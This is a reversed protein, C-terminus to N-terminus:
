PAVVRTQFFFTEVGSLPQTSRVTVRDVGNGLDEVSEVVPLPTAFLLTTSASVTIEVGNAARNRTFRVAPYRIGDAEVEVGAPWEGSGAVMPNGGLAYELRNTIGDGDPDDDPGDQGVPVNYGALWAAFGPDPDPGSAPATVQIRQIFDQRGPTRGAVLRINTGVLVSGDELPHICHVVPAYVNDAAGEYPSQFGPVLAGDARVHAIARMPVGNVEAFSGGLVLTGDPLFAMARVGSAAVDFSPDVEGDPGARLLRDQRNYYVEGAPGVMVGRPVPDLAAPVWLRTESDDALRRKLGTSVAYWLSGDPPAAVSFLEGRTASTTNAVRRELQGDVDLFLLENAGGEGSNSRGVLYRQGSLLAAARPSYNGSTPGNFATDLTLDPNLRAIQGITVIAGGPGIAQFNLTGVAIFGGDHAPLADAVVRSSGSSPIPVFTRDLSGDAGFRFVLQPLYGDAVRGARVNGFAVFRGAGDPLIRSVRVTANGSSSDSEFTFDPRFAGPAVAFLAVGPSVAEGFTNWVRVSYTSQSDAAAPNAIQLTASDFGTIRSDSGDLPTGDRRWEYRLPESGDAVVTFRATGGAFAIATVPPSVISPPRNVVLRAPNSTRSGAASTAVVQYVGDRDASVGTLVLEPTLAGSIGDGDSVPVGNFLWRWSIPDPSTAQASLRVEGGLLVEADAPHVTFRPGGAVVVVAERSARSGDPGSVILQYRGSDAVAAPNVTLTPGTAGSVAGGDVLAVGDVLWQYALPGNGIATGSLVLVGGEDLTQDLPQGVIVPAGIDPVPIGHVQNGGALLLLGNAAVAARTRVSIGSPLRSWSGATADPSMLLAGETAVRFGGDVFVVADFDPRDEGADHAPLRQLAWTTGNGSTSVSGDDGVAVFRGAGHAIGHFPAGSMSGTSWTEGNDPSHIFGTGAGAFQGDHWAVVQFNRTGGVSKDTWQLGDESIMVLGADGVAAFRGGGFAVGGFNRNAPGPQLFQWHLGDASVAVRGNDGVAVFRGNGFAVGRHATGQFVLDALATESARSRWERGDVSIAVGETGVLVFRGNGHTAAMFRGAAGGLKNVRHSAGLTGNYGALSVDIRIGREGYAQGFQFGTLRQAAPLRGIRSWTLGDTSDLLTGDSAVVRFGDSGVLDGSFGANRATWSLGDASTLITGADGVAIFQGGGAAHFAVHRLTRGTGSPIVSWTRMDRDTSRLIVGGTGVLISAEPGSGRSAGSLLAEGTVAPLLEYTHPRDLAAPQGVRIMVGADGAVVAGPTLARHVGARLSKDTLVPGTSEVGRHLVHIFGADGLWFNGSNVTEFYANGARLGRPGVTGVNAGAYYRGASFDTQVLLSPSTGALAVNRIAPATLDDEPLEWALGDTSTHLVPGVAVALSDTFAVSDPSGLSPFTQMRVWENGDVSRWLVHDADRAHFAGLGFAVWRIISTPTSARTWTQGDSSHALGSHGGIVYRGNGFAVMQTSPISGSPAGVPHDVPATWTAGDDSYAVQSNRWLVFRGNVFDLNAYSGPPLPQAVETWALGDASRQMGGLSDVTVFHGNGFAIGRIAPTLLPKPLATWRLGDTSRFRTYGEGVVVWVGNGHAIGNLRLRTDVGFRNWDVGNESVAVAGLEGVAVFRGDLHRVRVMRTLSRLPNLQTVEGALSDSPEAAVSRAAIRTHVTVQGEVSSGEAIVANDEIRGTTFHFPNPTDWVVAGATDVSGTLDGSLDRIAGDPTVTLFITGVVTEPMAFPGSTRFYVPGSYSGAHPSAARASPVILASLIALFLGVSFGRGPIHHIAPLLRHFQISSLM